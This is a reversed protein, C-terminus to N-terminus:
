KRCFSPLSALFSSLESLWEDRCVPISGRVEQRTDEPHCIIESRPSIQWEQWLVSVPAVDAFLSSEASTLPCSSKRQLFASRTTGTPWGDCAKRCVPQQQRAVSFMNVNPNVSAESHKWSSACKKFGYLRLVKTWLKIKYKKTGHTVGMLRVCVFYLWLQHRM